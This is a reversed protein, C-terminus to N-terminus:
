VQKGTQKRNANAVLPLSLRIMENQVQFKNTQCKKKAEMGSLSFMAISHKTQNLTDEM